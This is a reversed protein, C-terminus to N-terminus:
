RRGDFSNSSRERVKHSPGKLVDGGSFYLPSFVLATIVDCWLVNKLRLLQFFFFFSFFNVPINLSALLLERLLPPCIVRRVFSMLTLTYFSTKCLFSLLRYLFIFFKKQQSNRENPKKKTISNLWRESSTRYFIVCPMKINKTKNKLSACSEFHISKNHRCLM